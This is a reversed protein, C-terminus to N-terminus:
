PTAPRVTISVVDPGTVDDAVQCDGAHGTTLGNDGTVCRSSSLLVTGLVDLGTYLRREHLERARM